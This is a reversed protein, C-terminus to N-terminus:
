PAQCRVNRRGHEDYYYAAGTSTHHAASALRPPTGTDDSASPRVPLLGAFDPLFDQTDRSAGKTTPPPAPDRMEPESYQNGRTSPM